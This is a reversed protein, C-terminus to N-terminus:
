LYTNNTLRSSCEVHFGSKGPRELFGVRTSEAFEKDTEPSNRQLLESLGAIQSEPPM